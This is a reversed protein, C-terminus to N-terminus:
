MCPGGWLPLGPSPEEEEFDYGGAGAWLSGSRGKYEAAKELSEKRKERWAGERVGKSGKSVSYQWALKSSM